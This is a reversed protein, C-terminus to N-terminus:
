RRQLEYIYDTGVPWPGINFVLRLAIRDGRKGEPPIASIRAKVSSIGEATNLTQQWNEGSGTGDKFFIDSSSSVTFSQEADVFKAYGHALGGWGSLTNETETMSVDLTVTEGVGITQPPEGFECRAGYTEGHIYKEEFVDRTEGDYVSRVGYSGRSYDFTYTFEFNKETSKQESLEHDVTEVLVWAYKGEQGGGGAGGSDDCASLSLLMLASLIWCIKKMFIGREFKM